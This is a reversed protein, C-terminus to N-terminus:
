STTLSALLRGLEANTSDAAAFAMGHVFILEFIFVGRFFNRPTGLENM